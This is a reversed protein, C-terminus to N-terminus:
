LTRGKCNRRFTALGDGDVDGYVYTQGSVVEYRLEGAKQHFVDNGIFSFAQDGKLLSNADIASLDIKDRAKLSYDLITDRGTPAVTSDKVSTFVFRDASAGGSLRDAGAGGILVDKGADGSLRDNGRGGVLLDNHLGGSLRDDGNEGRLVDDGDSGTLTDNGNGGFAKDDGQAGSYDNKATGTLRDAADTGLVSSLQEVKVSDIDFYFKQNKGATSAPVLTKSGTDWESPPAWINLADGDGQRARPGERHAGFRWGGAVPRCRAAM